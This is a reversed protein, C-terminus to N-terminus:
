AAVSQLQHYTRLALMAAKGKAEAAQQARTAWEVNGPEYNGIDLFRSLSHKLSPREGLDTLFNEFGHEGLWRECVKVGADFYYEHGTGQPNKTRNVMAAWSGYTPSILSRTSHGHKFGPNDKGRWGANRAVTLQRALCGCSRTNGSILCGGTLEIEKGDCRCRCLFIARRWQNRGVRRLVLLRTFTQGTLDRFASV